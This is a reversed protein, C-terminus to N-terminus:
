KMSRINVWRFLSPFGLAALCADHFIIHRQGRNKALYGFPDIGGLICTHILSMFIDGILAGHPPMLFINRRLM